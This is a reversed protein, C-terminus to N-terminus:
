LLLRDPPGRHALTSGGRYRICTGHRGMEFIALQDLVGSFHAAPPLSHWGVRCGDVPWALTVHPHFRDAHEDTVEDYGYARLQRLQGSDPAERELRSVVEDLPAGSPDTPRLRGQRLPGIAGIVKGQLAHWEPTRTFYVEPAGCPNHRYDVGVAGIASCNAALGDLVRVLNDIHSEDVELM